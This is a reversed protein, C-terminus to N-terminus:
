DRRTIFLYRMQEDGYFNCDNVTRVLARPNV